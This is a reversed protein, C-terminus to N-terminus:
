RMHYAARYDASPAGDQLFEILDAQWRLGAKGGRTAETLVLCPASDARHRVLRIRKPEMGGARLACFIDCLREPRHVLAFRGGYRLLRGATRCLAEPTLADECRGARAARMGGGDPFYPPNAIVCDFGGTPLPAWAADGLVSSLRAALGNQRINELAAEHSLADREVGVVSCTEERACLLLGLTGVGSCLDAVRAGKSLTLFQALLMSDTGLPFAGDPVTLRLSGIQETM